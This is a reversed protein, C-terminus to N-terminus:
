GPEYNLRSCVRRFGCRTINALSPNSEDGLPEGTETVISRVGSDLAIQVRHALVARHGGRGRFEPLTGGIGLWAFDRERYLFGGCVVRDGAFGAVADWGPRGVLAAFWPAFSQPMAFASVLVDALGGADAADIERVELSTSAAPATPEDFLMKAWARRGALKFDRDLLWSGIATPRAAPNVHIWFARSGAARFRGIVEDLDAESSPRFVGLGIARNFMPTPIGPALLLSAGCVDVSHLGTTQRFGAPAARCMDRFAAAEAEDVLWSERVAPDPM